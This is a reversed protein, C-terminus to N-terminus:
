YNNKAFNYLEYVEKSNHRRFRYNYAINNIYGNPNFDDVYAFIHTPIFSDDINDKGWSCYNLKHMLFYGVAVDELFRCELFEKKNEVLKEVCDRSLMSNHGAVFFYKDQYKNRAGDYFRYPNITKIYDRLKSHIIYSTNCIRLIFDYDYTNLIYEYARLLKEGRPDFYNGLVDYAGVIIDGNENEKVESKEVSCKADTLVKDQDDFLGYYFKVDIGDETDKIWTNRMAKEIENYEKHFTGQILILTKM